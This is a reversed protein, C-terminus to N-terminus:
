RVINIYKRLRRFNGLNTVLIIPGSGSERFKSRPGGHGLPGCLVLSSSFCGLLLEKKEKEKTQAQWGVFGLRAWNWM